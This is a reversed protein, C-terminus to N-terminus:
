RNVMFECSVRLFEDMDADTGISVRLWERIRESKLHRVLIRNERYYGALREGDTGPLSIFIFNASSPLVLFGMERLRASVRNRTNIICETNCRFYEKDELAAAACEIAVRDMTYSNFSNKVRKIGDILEPSGICYGARMGALSHSKSLTKVILINDLEELLGKSTEGGFAAYAEDIILVGGAAKALRRIDNIGLAIGTPANPNAIIIGGNPISYDQPNINFNDDLPIEKYNVRYERCYVPYFSYTVDPFLVPQAQPEFFASFSFALLEDSGNGAMICERPVNEFGAIADIFRSMDPDPYLKLDECVAKVAAELAKPSPPYPNENTNIKIYKEGKPQEGPTYPVLEATKRNLLSM